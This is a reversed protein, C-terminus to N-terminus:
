FRLQYKLRLANEGFTEHQSLPSFDHANIRYRSISLNLRHDDSYHFQLNASWARQNEIDVQREQTFSMEGKLLRQYGIGFLLKPSLQVAPMVQYTYLDFKQKCVGSQLDRRDVKIQTQIFWDKGFFKEYRMEAHHEKYGDVSFDQREYHFGSKKAKDNAIDQLNNHWFLEEAQCLAPLFILVSIIAAKMM